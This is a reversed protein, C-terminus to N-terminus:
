ICCYFKLKKARAYTRKTNKLTAKSGNFVSAAVQLLSKFRRGSREEGVGVWCGGEELGVWVRSFFLLLVSNDRGIVM